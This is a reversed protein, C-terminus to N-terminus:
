YRCRAPTQAQAYVRAFEDLYAHALVLVDMQVTDFVRRVNVSIYDHSLKDRMGAM